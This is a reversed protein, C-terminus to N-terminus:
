SAVEMLEDYSAPIEHEGSLLATLVRARLNKLGAVAESQRLQLDGIDRLPRTYADQRARDPMPVRLRAFGAKNIKRMSESTGSASATIASRLQPSSLLQELYDRSVHQEDPVLRWVLDPLYTDEPVGRAVCVYGVRDPTNSRTILLDGERLRAREPLTAAGVDKIESPYFRAPRVAALSLLRIRKGPGEIRKTSVGSEIALFLSGLEVQDGKPLARRMAVTLEACTAAEREGAAIADDLASILSVIRRQEPAPPVAVRVKLFDLPSLRERRGGMGKSNAAMAAWLESRQTLLRMFAPVVRDNVTFTPFEGSAYSQSLDSPTVTIAGEFAKLKSYVVQDPRIANLERYSTTGASVPERFLLGRGFGLVGVIPYDRGEEVPVKRVDHTLVDGLPLVEWGERM